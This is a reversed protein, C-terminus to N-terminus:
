KENEKVILKKGNTSTVLVKSSINGKLINEKIAAINPKVMEFFLNLNKKCYRFLKKNDTKSFELNSIIAIYKKTKIREKNTKLIENRLKEKEIELKKIKENLKYYQNIKEKINEM